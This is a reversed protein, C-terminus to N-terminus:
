GETGFLDFMSFQGAVAKNAKEEKQRQREAAEAAKQAAKERQAKRKEEAEAIKKALKEAEEAKRREEAERREANRREIEKERQEADIAMKRLQEPTQRLPFLSPQNEKIEDEEFYHVAWGFVEADEIVAVGNMAQKRAEKRIFEWCGALTKVGTNIKEALPESANKELYDLLIEQNKGEAKLSLRAM